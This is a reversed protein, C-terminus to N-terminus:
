EKNFTQELDFKIKDQSILYGAVMLNVILNKLEIKNFSNFRRIITEYHVQALNLILPYVVEEELNESDQILSNKEIIFRELNNLYEKEPHSNIHNNFTENELIFDLIEEFSNFEM